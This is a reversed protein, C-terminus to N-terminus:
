SLGLEFQVQQWDDEADSSRVEIPVVLIEQPTVHVSEAASLRVLKSNDGLSIIKRKYVAVYHGGLRMLEGSQQTLHSHLWTLDKKKRDKIAEETPEKLVAPQKAASITGGHPPITINIQLGSEEALTILATCLKITKAASPKKKVM